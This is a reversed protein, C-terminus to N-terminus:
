FHFTGTRMWVDAVGVDVNWEPGSAYPKADSCAELCDVVVDLLRPLVAKENKTSAKSVGSAKCNLIM